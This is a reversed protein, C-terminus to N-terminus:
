KLELYYHGTKEHWSMRYALYYQCQMWAGRRRWANRAQRKFEKEADKFTDYEKRESIFGNNWLTVTAM